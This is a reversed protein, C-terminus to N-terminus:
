LGPPPNDLSFVPLFGHTPNSLYVFSPSGLCGRELMNGALIEAIKM